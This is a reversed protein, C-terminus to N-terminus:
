FILLVGNCPASDLNCTIFDHLRIHALVTLSKSRFGFQDQGFLDIIQKKVSSIIVKKCIKAFIPLLSIPRLDKITPNKKKPIPLINAVKWQQPICRMEISPAILHILILAFVDAGAVHLRPSWGDSGAAKKIQLSRLEEQCKNFCEM